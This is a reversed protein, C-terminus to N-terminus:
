NVQPIQRNFSNGYREAIVNGNRLIVLGRANLSANSFHNEIIRELRQNRVLSTKLDKFHNIRDTKLPKFVEENKIDPQDVVCGRYM